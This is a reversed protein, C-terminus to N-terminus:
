AAGEVESPAPRCSREPHVNARKRSAEQRAKKISPMLILLLGTTILLGLSIPREIFVM